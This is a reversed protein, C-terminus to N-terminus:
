NPLQCFFNTFFPLGTSYFLVSKDFACYLRPSARACVCTRLPPECQSMDLDQFQQTPLGLQCGSNVDARGCSRFCCAAEWLDRRRESVSPDLLPAKNCKPVCGHKRVNFRGSDGGVGMWKEKRKKWLDSDTQHSLQSWKWLKAHWGTPSYILSHILSLLPQCASKSLSPLLCTERWWSTRLPKYRRRGWRCFVSVFVCLNKTIMQKLSPTWALAILLRWPSRTRKLECRDSGRTRTM